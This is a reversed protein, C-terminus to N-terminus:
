LCVCNHLYYILQAVTDVYELQLYTLSTHLFNSIIAILM